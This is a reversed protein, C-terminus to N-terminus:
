RAFAHPRADIAQRHRGQAISRPLWRVARFLDRTAKQFEEQSMVPDNEKRGPIEVKIQGLTTMSPQYAAAPTDGHPKPKEDAFGAGAAVGLIACSLLLRRALTAPFRM